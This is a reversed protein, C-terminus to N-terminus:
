TFQKFWRRFQLIPGDSKIALPCSLYKKRNWLKIDRQLQTSTGWLLVKAFPRHWSSPSYISETIRHIHDHLPLVSQVLAFDGFWTEFHMVVNAPGNMTLDVHLISMKLLWHVVRKVVNPISNFFSPKMKMEHDITMYAKHREIAHPRWTARFDHTFLRQFLRM